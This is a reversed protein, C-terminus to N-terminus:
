TTAREHASAIADARRLDEPTDIDAPADADIDVLRVASAHRAIVARAGVDGTVELLEPFLVRAFLVPHGRGDRYRPAVIPHGGTRWADILRDVVAPDVAPQDGLAIIAADIDAGLSEIGARLSTSMGDGAAENPAVAVPLGELADVIRRRDAAAAVVVTADVRSACVREVTSRIVTRGALAALMKGGGFRRASGAALVVAAVRGAAATM